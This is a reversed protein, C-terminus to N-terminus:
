TIRKNRAAEYVDLITQHLLDLESGYLSEFQKQGAHIAVGPGGNQHHQSCLPIVLTDHARQSMGQGTRIHHIMAPTPGYGCNRCVVCGLESVDNLYKKIITTKNM